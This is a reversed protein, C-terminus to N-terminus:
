QPLCASGRRRKGARKFFALGQDTREDNREDQWQNKNLTRRLFERCPDRENRDDVDRHHEPLGDDSRKLPL